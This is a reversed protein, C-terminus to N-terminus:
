RVYIKRAVSQIPLERFTIELKLLFEVFDESPVLLGGRDHSQIMGVTESSHDIVLKSELFQKSRRLLYGGM